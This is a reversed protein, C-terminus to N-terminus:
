GGLLKEANTSLIMQRQQDTLDANKVADLSWPTSFIPCDTGFLVKDAGYLDVAIELSRPGLSSCDVHISKARDSPLPQDPTRTLTVHDMREIVMPLTGGLNAVHVSIDPYADLYDTFLLTVMCASVRDQVALAQRAAMNDAFRRPKVQNPGGPVEDPRRGPHIFFHGGLEQGAEFLPKLREAREIDVLSNVPLIAGALGLETRARRYEGVAIDIDAFPLAALGSFHDPYSKCVSSLDDNFTRILGGCENVPLSDLGFLGPFSLVQRTEGHQAMFDRRKDL